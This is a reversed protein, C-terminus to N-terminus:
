HTQECNTRRDPDTTITKLLDMVHEKVFFGAAGLSLAAKRFEDDGYDTVIYIKASPNLDLIRTAAELGDMRQMVIDMLIIDPTDRGYAQVAEAGDSYEVVEANRRLLQERLFARMNANDDVIMVKM